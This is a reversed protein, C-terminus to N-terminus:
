SARGASRCTPQTKKAALGGTYAWEQATVIAAASDRWGGAM